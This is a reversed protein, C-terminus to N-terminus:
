IECKMTRCFFLFCILIDSIRVPNKTSDGHKKMAAFELTSRDMDASGIPIDTVTLSPM